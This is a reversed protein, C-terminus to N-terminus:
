ILTWWTRREVVTEASGPAIGKFDFSLDAWGDSNWYRQYACMRLFAAWQKICDTRLSRENLYSYFLQIIMPKDVPIKSFLFAQRM